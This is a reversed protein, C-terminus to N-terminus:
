LTDRRPSAVELSKLLDRQAADMSIGQIGEGDLTLRHLKMTEPTEPLREVSNVRPPHHTKLRVCLVRYVM